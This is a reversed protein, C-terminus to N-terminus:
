TWPTDPVEAREAADLSPGEEVLDLADGLNDLAQQRTRGQSTVNCTRHRAVYWEGERTVEVDDDRTTLSM